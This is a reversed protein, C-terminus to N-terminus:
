YNGMGAILAVIIGIIRFLNKAASPCKSCGYQGSRTYGPLCSSCLAGYYGDGCEGVPNYNPPGFGRCFILLLYNSAHSIKMAFLSCMLSIRNGGTAQSQDLTIGEWVTLKRLPVFRATKHSLQLCYCTLVKHVNLAHEQCM